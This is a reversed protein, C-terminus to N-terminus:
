CTFSKYELFCCKAHLHEGSDVEIKIPDRLDSSKIKRLAGKWLDWHKLKLSVNNSNIEECNSCHILEVFISDHCLILISHFLLSPYFYLQCAAHAWKAEVFKFDM